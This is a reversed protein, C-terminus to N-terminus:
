NLAKVGPLVKGELSELMAGGGTSIYDVWIAKGFQNLAAISDGGGVIVYKKEDKAKKLIKCIQSTGNSFKEKEFVGMPGNWFVTNSSMIINEFATISKSSIDMGSWGPPIKTINFVEEKTSNNFKDGALVDIPLHIETNLKEAKELISKAENILAPEYLSDGIEGGKAKIFTFAMGGAIIIKDVQEILNNLIKLKSSVKAGGLISLIPKKGNELIKNIIHLEKELLKGAYKKKHFYKTVTYTSAHKRHCTGFADNVYADGLRSLKEAFTEDGNTEEKYFRLNELLLIDGRKMQAVRKEVDDGICDNIFQVKRDLCKSVDKLIHSLSLKKEKGNPRGLHAMLVCAGGSNIVFDVTDKCAKIRTIDTVNLDEDLPVNLDLRILVKENRFSQNTLFFM